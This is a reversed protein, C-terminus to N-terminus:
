YIYKQSFDESVGIPHAIALAGQMQVILSNSQCSTIDREELKSM